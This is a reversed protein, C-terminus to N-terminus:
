FIICDWMFDRSPSQSTPAIVFLVVFRYEGSTRARATRVTKGDIAVVGDAVGCLAGVWAAFCRQFQKADLTALIDGLHDHAPTGDRFPRFRRLFMIKKCTFLAFDVFTEAGALVGLLCLLLVEDLPYSVKAKQRTDSLDKFYSLFVLSEDLGSCDMKACDM